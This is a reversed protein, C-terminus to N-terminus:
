IHCITYVMLERNDEELKDIKQRLVLELTSGEEVAKRAEELDKMLTLM